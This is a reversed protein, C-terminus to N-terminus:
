NRDIPKAGPRPLVKLIREPNAPGLEVVPKKVGLYKLLHMTLAAPRRADVVIKGSLRELIHAGLYQAPIHEPRNPTRPFVIGPFAPPAVIRRVM